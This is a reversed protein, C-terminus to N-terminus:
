PPQPRCEMAAETPAAGVVCLRETAGAVEVEWGVMVGMSTAEVVRGVWGVVM